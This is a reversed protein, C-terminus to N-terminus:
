LTKVLKVKPTRTHMAWEISGAKGFMFLGLIIQILAEVGFGRKLLPKKKERERERKLDCTFM